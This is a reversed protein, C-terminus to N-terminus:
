EKEIVKPPILEEIVSFGLYGGMWATFFSQDVVCGVFAGVMVGGITGLVLKSGIRRPLRIANDKVMDKILAGLGGALAFKIIEWATLTEILM